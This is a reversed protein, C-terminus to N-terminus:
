KLSAIYDDRSLLSNLETLDYPKVLVLWGAGYPEANVLGPSGELEENVAQIRGGIPIFLQSATKASEAIGFEDDRSFEDDSVPLEIFVIDGLQDQAFDTIGVRVLDGERKAWTHEQYYLIGDPFYLEDLDKM